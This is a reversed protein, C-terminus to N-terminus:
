LDNPGHDTQNMTWSSGGPAKRQKQIEPLFKGLGKLEKVVSMTVAAM